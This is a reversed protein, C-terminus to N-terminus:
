NNCINKNQDGYNHKRFGHKIYLICPIGIDHPSDYPAPFKDSVFFYIFVQTM